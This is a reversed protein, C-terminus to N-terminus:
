LWELNVITSIRNLSVLLENKASMSLHSTIEQSLTFPNCTGCLNKMAFTELYHNETLAQVSSPPCLLWLYASTCSLYSSLSQPWVQLKHALLRLEIKGCRSRLHGAGKWSCCGKVMASAPQLHHSLVVALHYPM